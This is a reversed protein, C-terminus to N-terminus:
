TAPKIEISPECAVYTATRKLQAQQRVRGEGHSGNSQHFQRGQDDKPQVASHQSVAHIAATEDQDHFEHQHGRGRQKERVRQQRM